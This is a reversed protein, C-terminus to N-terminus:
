YRKTFTFQGTCQNTANNCQVNLTDVSDIIEYALANFDISQGPKYHFNSPLVDVHAPQLSSTEGPYTVQIANPDQIDLGVRKGAYKKGANVYVKESNGYGYPNYGYYGGYGGGSENDDLDAEAVEQGGPGSEINININNSASDSVGRTGYGYNGYGYGQNWWMYPYWANSWYPWWGAGGWGGCGGRGCGVRKGANKTEVMDTALDTAVKHALDDVEKVGSKFYPIDKPTYFKEPSSVSYANFLDRLTQKYKYPMGEKVFCDCLYDILDDSFM